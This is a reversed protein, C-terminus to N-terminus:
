RARPRKRSRSTEKTGSRPLGLGAASGPTPDSVGIAAIDDVIERLSPIASLVRDLLDDRRAIEGLFQKGHIGKGYKANLGRRERFREDLNAAAGQILLPDSPPEGLDFHETVPLILSEREWVLVYPHFRPALKKWEQPTRSGMALTAMHERVTTCLQSSYTRVDENLKRPAGKVLGWAEKADIVFGVHDYALPLDFLHLDFAECRKLVQTNGHVRWAPGFHLPDMGAASRRRRVAAQIVGHLGSGTKDECIVLVSTM